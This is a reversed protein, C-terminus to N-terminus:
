RYAVWNDANELTEDSIMDECAGDMARWKVYEKISMNFKQGAYKTAMVNLQPM